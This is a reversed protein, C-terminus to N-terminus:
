MQAEDAVRDDAVPQVAAASRGGARLMSQRRGDLSVAAQRQVGPPEGERARPASFPTFELGGAGLLHPTKEISQLPRRLAGRFPVRLRSSSPTQRSRPPCAPAFARGDGPAVRVYARRITRGSAASPGAPASM